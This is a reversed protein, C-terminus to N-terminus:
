ANVTNTTDFNPHNRKEQKKKANRKKKTNSSTEMQSM